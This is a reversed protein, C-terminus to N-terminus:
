RWSKRGYIERMIPNSQIQRLLYIQAEKVTYFYYQGCQIMRKVEKRNKKTKKLM